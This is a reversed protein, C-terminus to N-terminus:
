IKDKRIAKQFSISSHSYLALFNGFYIAFITLFIYTKIFFIQEHFLLLISFVPSLELLSDGTKLYNIIVRADTTKM